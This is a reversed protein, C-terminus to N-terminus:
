AVRSSVRSSIVDNRTSDLRTSENVRFELADRVIKPKLFKEHCNKAGPIKRMYIETM